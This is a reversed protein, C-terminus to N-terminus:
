VTDQFYKVVDSTSMVTVVEQQHLHKDDSWVVSEPIALACAVIITDRIDIDKMISHAKEVAAFEEKPMVAKKQLTEKYNAYEEFVYRPAFFGSYKLLLERTTSNRLLASIFVNTDLVLKM